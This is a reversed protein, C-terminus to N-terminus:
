PVVAGFDTVLSTRGPAGNEYLFSDRGTLMFLHDFAVFRLRFEDALFRALLREEATM